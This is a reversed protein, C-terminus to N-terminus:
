EFFSKMAQWSRKDASENYAVGKSNDNGAKPNTFSHVAGGYINIQWDTGSDRMEKEFAEVQSQSVFPDDGGHLILIKGKINKADQPSPTDLNGHFSVAGKIDAGSRALELSVMGGFCYGMVAIKGADVESQKKLEEYALNIIKRTLTRDNKYLGAQKGADEPNSPRIGKGYIDAAFAYYGLEALQICKEKTFEGVGTWDHVVIVGPMKGSVSKDFAYFGEYTKGDSGYEINGTKIQSVLNGTILLTIILFLIHKIM